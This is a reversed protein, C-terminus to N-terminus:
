SHMKPRAIAASPILYQAIMLVDSGVRLQLSSPAFDVHFTEAYVVSTSYLKTVAINSHVSAAAARRILPGDKALVLWPDDLLM